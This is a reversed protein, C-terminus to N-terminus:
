TGINAIKDERWSWLAAWTAGPGAIFVGAVVGLAAKIGTRTEIYGLRRLDWISYLNGGVYAALATAGDYRFFTAVQKSLSVINWQARFPNPLGFFANAISIDPHSWAYALTAVHVTAQVIFAYTYASNLIPVDDKEYRHFGGPSNEQAGESRQWRGLGVSLVATLVNVLPPAFQWLAMWNQWARLNPTQAFVMITPLIFGLTLAPGLSIAVRKPVVRGTTEQHIYLASLIAHVLAMRGIGQVQMGATFLIPLALINRQNGMRYGEITYILLPSIFQPLFNLLHLRAAPNTDLIPVSLVSMLMNLFGSAPTRGLRSIIIDDSERWGHLKPFPIRFPKETVVLVFGMSGIFAYRVFGSTAKSIPKAPLEDAFPIARQRDPIHLKHVTAAHVFVQGLRNLIYEDGALPQVLSGIITSVLPNEFANLAQVEHSHRVIMEARNHRAAQTETFIDEIDQDTLNTLSGDRSDKKRLIANLFEACSEMAGNAGQGGIPNPKHASDGLTIIRRFFWTQFVGEHLATLTSSLRKDFVQGFSIETTIPLHYNRKVFEAEDDKGYKPIDTGYKTEPLRDFLFWYVRDEPGSVVLQSQGRGTVFHQEGSIWGPVHQAIGFSCRYYCPIHGEENPPFYGSQLENGLSVMLSRVNSHIGDAGVVITGTFVSGDAASVKVGQDILDIGTVKKNLLIRDKHRIQDHLIQLLQERDLFLLGYGHRRELHEFMFHLTSTIKGNKDRSHAKELKQSFLGQITEYCGLQDLIRLGNPFLGISAGVPPAIQSYGELIVFDIDFKELM